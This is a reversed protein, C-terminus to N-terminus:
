LTINRGFDSVFFCSITYFGDRKNNGAIRVPMLVTKTHNVILTEFRM